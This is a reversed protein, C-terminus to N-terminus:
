KEKEMMEERLRKLGHHFNVKAADESCGVVEAVEKFSLDEFARLEVCLRQKPPLAAVAQRLRRAEDADRQEPAVAEGHDDALPVHDPRRTRLQSLALNVTIRYVWTRFSAEGRFTALREFAQVFARQALDRADEQDRLFRLALRQIAGQYRRVLEDFARRDGARFKEVLARDDEPAAQLAVAM